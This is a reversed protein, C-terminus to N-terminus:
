TWWDFVLLFMGEMRIRARRREDAAKQEPTSHHRHGDVEAGVLPDLLTDIRYEGNPGSVVETSIPLINGGRLLRLFRSEVATPGTALLATTLDQEPSRPSGAVRVVRPSPRDWAGSAVRHHEQDATVGIARLQLRAAVAYQQRFLDSLAREREHKM